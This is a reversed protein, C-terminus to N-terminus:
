SARFNPTKTMKSHPFAFISPTVNQLFININSLMMVVVEDPIAPELFVLMPMWFSGGMKAGPVIHLSLEFFALGVLWNWPGRWLACCICILLQLLLVLPQLLLVLLLRFLM